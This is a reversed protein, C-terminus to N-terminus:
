FSVNFWECGCCVVLTRSSIGLTHPSLHSIYSQIHTASVVEDSTNNPDKFADKADGRRKFVLKEGALGDLLKGDDLEGSSQHRLWVREAKKKQLSDLAERLQDVQAAM